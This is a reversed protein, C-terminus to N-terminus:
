LNRVLLVTRQYFKQNHGEITQRVVITSPSIAIVQGSHDGMYSGIKVIYIEDKVYDRVIAKYADSEQVYGQYVLCSLSLTNHLPGWSGPGDFGPQEVNTEFEFHRCNQQLLYKYEHSLEASTKAGLQRLLLEVQNLNQQGLDSTTFSRKFNLQDLITKQDSGYRANFLSATDLDPDAQKARKLKILMIEAARNSGIVKELAHHMLTPTGKSCGIELYVDELKRNIEILMEEISKFDDSAVFTCAADIVDEDLAQASASSHFSLILTFVFLLRKM